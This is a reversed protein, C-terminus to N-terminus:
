KQYSTDASPEFWDSPPECHVSLTDWTPSDRKGGCTASDTQVSVSDMILELCPLLCWLYEELILPWKGLNAIIQYCILDCQTNLWRIVDNLTYSVAEMTLESMSVVLKWDSVVPRWVASDSHELTLRNCTAPRLLGWLRRFCRIWTFIEIKEGNSPFFYTKNELCHRACTRIRAYRVRGHRQVYDCYSQIHVGDVKQAYWYHSLAILTPITPNVNPGYHFPLSTARTM